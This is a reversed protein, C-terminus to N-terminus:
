RFAWLFVWIIYHLTRVNGKYAAPFTIFASNKGIQVSGPNNPDAM